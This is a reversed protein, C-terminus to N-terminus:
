PKARGEYMFTMPRPGRGLYGTDLTVLRFGADRLLSDVPNDLHCSIRTWLPDLRDQWSAVNPDPALGHEVFLLDGGPKLVRRIERLAGGSDPISCLSWTMIVTDISAERLPIAEASARVLQVPRGAHDALLRARRLLEASTDLGLIFEAASSYFPLNLGSGIGVELVHGHALPALRQRYPRLDDRRMSWDVLRPLVFREYIGM